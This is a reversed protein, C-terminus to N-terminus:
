AERGIRVPMSDDMKPLVDDVGGIRSVRGAEILVVRDGIARAENRHHTVHLLPLKAEDIYARVDGALQLRLERDMASFPEDLMVVRPSRAFARALAVRQAEGGSFTPPKRDALHAVKMRALMDHARKRREDRSLSRDIGYEVNGLASLHPFLALSQFVFAIGRRHIPVDIKAQADFWVDNGLAIRGAGPRHLGAIAALTTSKGAGSPGFLITIGPPAEFEVELSLGGARTMGFKVSLGRESRM